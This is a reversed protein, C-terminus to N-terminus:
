TCSDQSGRRLSYCVNPTPFADERLLEAHWAAATDQCGWALWRKPKKEQWLWPLSHLSNRVMWFWVLLKKRKEVCAVEAWLKRSLILWIAKRLELPCWPFIVRYIGWFLVSSPISSYYQHRSEALKFFVVQFYCIGKVCSWPYIPQQETAWDYRVRQSGM